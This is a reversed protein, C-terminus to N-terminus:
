WIMGGKGKGVTDLFRNKIVADGKSGQFYYWWDERELTWVHTNIHLIQRGRGSKSWETHYDLIWENSNVGIHEKKYIFLIGNYIDVM